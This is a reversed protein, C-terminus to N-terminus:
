GLVSGAAIQWPMGSSQGGHVVAGEARLCEVSAQESRHHWWRKRKQDLKHIHSCKYRTCQRYNFDNCTQKSIDVSPKVTNLKDKSTHTRPHGILYHNVLTGYIESWRSYDRHTMETLHRAHVAFHYNLVAMWEYELYMTYLSQLYKNCGFVFQKGAFSNGASLVQMQLISFYHLLPYYLSAWSPYDKPLPDKDRQVLTGNEFDLTTAPSKERIRTDLKFLVGPRFTHCGIALRVAEEIDPFFSQLSSRGAGTNGM